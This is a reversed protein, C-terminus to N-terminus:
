EKSSLLAAASMPAAKLANHCHQDGSGLEDSAELALIVHHSWDGIKL